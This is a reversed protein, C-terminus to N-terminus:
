IFPLFLTALALPLALWLGLEVEARLERLNRNTVVVPGEAGAHFVVQVQPPTAGLTCLTQGCVFVEDGPLLVREVATGVSRVVGTHAGAGAAENAIVRTEAALSVRKVPELLLQIDAALVRARGTGDDLVFDECVSEVTTPRDLRVRRVDYAVCARHSVPAEVLKLPVIRGRVVQGGPEA